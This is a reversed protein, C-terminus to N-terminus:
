VHARGIEGAADALLTLDLSEGLEQVAGVGPRDGRDLPSSGRRTSQAPLQGTTLFPSLHGSYQDGTGLPAVLPLPARGIQEATADFVDDLEVAAVVGAVGDDDAVLLVRQVQEWRADQSGADHRHDTVAH